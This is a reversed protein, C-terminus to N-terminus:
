WQDNGSTDRKNAFWADDATLSVICEVTLSATNLFSPNSIYDSDGDFLQGKGVKGDAESPEGAGQKLGHNANDTSDHVGSASYDHMHWVLKFDDDWVEYGPTSERAKIYSTNDAADNDYYFYFDTDASSSIEWGDKSVHYIAKPDGAEELIEIENISCWDDERHSTTINIKYYRYATSNLFTFEEWIANEEEDAAVGTYIVTWDSDNNSGQLTFDKLQSGGADWYKNLRLKRVTKTVAVGLDYKWWHPFSTETSNWRSSINGDVAKDAEYGAGADSDATATGGTLVDAGYVLFWEKEAYLETVGDAKTFACKRFKLDGTLESFIEEAQADTFFVTVPFWTLTADVKTHDITLKIRKSYTGFLDAM